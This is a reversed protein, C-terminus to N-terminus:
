RGGAGVVGEEDLGLTGPAEQAKVPALLAERGVGVIEGVDGCPRKGGACAGLLKDLHDCGFGENSRVRKREGSFETDNPLVHTEHRDVETAVDQEHIGAAAVGTWPKGTM